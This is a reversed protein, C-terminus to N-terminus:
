AIADFLSQETDAAMSFARANAKYAVSGIVLGVVGDVLDDGGSPDVEPTASNAIKDASAALLLDAANM